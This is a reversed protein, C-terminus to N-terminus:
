QKSVSQARSAFARGCEILLKTEEDSFTREARNAIGLTGVVEDDGDFMPVVIAGEMGTKKAGPRVDGSADTQINCITIPEARQAALGAMGKGIPVVRVLNLVVDPIGISAKLHLMRDDGLLHISGSDAKFHRIIRELADKPDRASKIDDPLNM